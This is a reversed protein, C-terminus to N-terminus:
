PIFNSFCFSVSITKVSNILIYHCTAAYDIFGDAFFKHSVNGIFTLTLYLLILLKLASAALQNISKDVTVINIIM